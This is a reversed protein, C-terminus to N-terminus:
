FHIPRSEAPYGEQATPVSKAGRKRILACSATHQTNTKVSAAPLAHFGCAANQARGREVGIKHRLIRWHISGLAPASRHQGEGADSLCRDALSTRNGLWIKHHNSILGQQTIWGSLRQGTTTRLGRKHDIRGVSRLHEPTRFCEVQRSDSM